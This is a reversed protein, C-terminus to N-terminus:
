DFSILQAEKIANEKAETQLNNMSNPQQYQYALGPQQSFQAQQNYMMQQQSNNYPLQAIPNQQYQVPTQQAPPALPVQQQNLYGPFPQQQQPQINPPQIQGMNQPSLTQTQTGSPIVQTQPLQTAVQPPAQPQQSNSNLQIQQNSALMNGNPVMSPLPQNLQTFASDMYQSYMNTGNLAAPNMSMNTMNNMLPMQSPYTQIQPNSNLMAPNYTDNPM